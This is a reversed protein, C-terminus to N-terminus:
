ILGVPKRKRRKRRKSASVALELADFLDKLKANPFSVLREILTTMWKQFHIRGSEFYPTLKWARTIKDKLTVIGLGRFSPDKDKLTHLQAKQYANTEVACWVPNWQRYMKLIRNTQSAFRFRGEEYDLVWIHDDKVGIVVQAFMDNSEKEGIALDVGQYILMSEKAPYEEPDHRLCHDYQFIEGKMAECDQQYQSNFIITGFKIRLKKLHETKFKTPWMSRDRSDLAPIVLTSNKMENKYLHGYLDDPHYRTGSISLDGMYQDEDSPPELCPLLVRYYWNRLKTRMHETLSNEEEVLDDALIVDYHKSAVAGGVGVTMVTPEKIPMSRPAVIISTEDWQRKGVYNGFIEKLKVNSEFHQKILYLFTQSNKLVKSAILMRINPNLLIYHIGKVVTTITSKGCGRFGLLMNEKHALQHILMPLHVRPLVQYGLIEEALIDIRRNHLIQHKLWVNYLTRSTSLTEVLQERPMYSLKRINTLFDVPDSSM